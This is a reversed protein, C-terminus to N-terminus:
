ESATHILRMRLCTVLFVIDGCCVSAAGVLMMEYYEIDIVDEGGVWGLGGGIAGTSWVIASMLKIVWCIYWFSANITCSWHWAERITGLVGNEWVRM